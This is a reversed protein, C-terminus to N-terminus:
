KGVVSEAVFVVLCGFTMRKTVPSLPGKRRHCFRNLKPEDQPAAFTLFSALPLSYAQRTTDSNRFRWFRKM